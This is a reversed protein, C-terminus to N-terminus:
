WGVSTGGGPSLLVYVSGERTQEQVEVVCVNERGAVIIALLVQRCVIVLSEIFVVAIM